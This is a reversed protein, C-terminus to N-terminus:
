NVQTYFCNVVVEMVSDEDVYYEAFVDESVTSSPKMEGKITYQEFDSVGHSLIVTALYTVDNLSINTQSYNMATNYLNSITSFDNVVASQLQQVYAKVYQTQRETRNLSAEINDVNRRRVYAEAFDGKITVTDGKKIGEEKFDYLSTVTVGGVADNLPAIGALDLAM